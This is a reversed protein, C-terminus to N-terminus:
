PACECVTRASLNCREDSYLNTLAAQVCDEGPAKDDRQGAAWPLYTAPVGLVTKFTGEVATDTVGVWIATGALTVVAALENADDPVVMYTGDLACTDHRTQWSGATTILKYRHGPAAAITIYSAPCGMPADPPADAGGDKAGDLGADVLPLDGVCTNSFQASLDGFRRGSPCSSDAFSCYDNLECTGSNCDVNSSCHFSTSRLCGAAMVVVVLLGGRIM